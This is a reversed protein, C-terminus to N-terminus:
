KKRENNYGSGVYNLITTVTRLFIFLNGLRLKSWLNALYNSIQQPMPRFRFYRFWMFLHKCKINRNAFLIYVLM